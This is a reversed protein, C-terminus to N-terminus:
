VTTSKRRKRLFGHSHLAREDTDEVFGSDHFKGLPEGRQLDFNEGGASGGLEQAFGADGHAVNGIEGAPGFHEAAAHFGQVGFDVAAQEEAAAVRFVLLLGRFMADCRDIKHDHIQIGEFRCGRFSAEGGFLQDLVNIDATGRHQAGGRLIEFAYSHDRVRAIEFADCGFDFAGAFGRQGRPELKRSFNEGGSRAVVAHDGRFQFSEGGRGAVDRQFRFGSSGSRTCM